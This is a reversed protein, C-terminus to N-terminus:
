GALAILLIAGVVWSALAPTQGGGDGASHLGPAGAGPGLRNATNAFGGVLVEKVERGDIRQAGKAQATALAGNSRSADRVTMQGDVDKGAGSDSRKAAIRAPLSRNKRRSRANGYAHVRRATVASCPWRLSISCSRWTMTRGRRSRVM